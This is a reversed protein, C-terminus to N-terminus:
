PPKPGAPKQLMGKAWPFSVNEQRAPHTAPKERSPGIEQGSHPMHSWGGERRKYHGAETTRPAVLAVDDQGLLGGATRPRLGM